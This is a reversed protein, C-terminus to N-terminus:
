KKNLKFKIEIWLSRSFILCVNPQKNAKVHDGLIFRPNVRQLILKISIYLWPLIGIKIKSIKENWIM